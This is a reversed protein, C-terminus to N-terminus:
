SLATEIMAIAKEPHAMCQRQGHMCNKYQRRMLYICINRMVALLEPVRGTHVRCFDEGFTVDRVYHLRNEIHWHRRSKDLLSAANAQTRTLSTIYYAVEISEEDTIVRKRKREVCIAQKADPFDLKLLETPLTKVTRVEIRGHGIETTSATRLEAKIESEAPPFLVAKL